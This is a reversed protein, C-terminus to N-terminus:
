IIYTKAADDGVINELSSEPKQWTPVAAATEDLEVTSLAATAKAV